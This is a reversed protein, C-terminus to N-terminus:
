STPRSTPIRRSRESTVEPAVTMNKVHVVSNVTKNSANIFSNEDFNFNAVQQFNTHIAGTTDAKQSSFSFSNDEKEKIYPSRKRIEEITNKVNNIAVDHVYQKNKSSKEGTFTKNTMAVAPKIKSLMETINGLKVDDITSKVAGCSEHGLVMIVKSGSKVAYEMSGLQDVDVFNGAVRGVFLDGIGQDLVDEVPVRSDICSLVYAKPYQGDVAQLVATSHDRATIEGTRFRENGAALQQLVMDPTLKKQEEESLVHYETIEIGNVEKVTLNVLQEAFAKLDAMNNIKNKKLNNILFQNQIDAKTL